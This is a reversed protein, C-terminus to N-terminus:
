GDDTPLLTFPSTPFKGKPSHIHFYSCSAMVLDKSWHACVVGRNIIKTYEQKQMNMDSSLKELLLTTFDVGRPCPAMNERSGAFSLQVVTKTVAETRLM